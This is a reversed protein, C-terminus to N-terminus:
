PSAFELYGLGVNKGPHVLKILQDVPMAVMATLSGDPWRVDINAETASGLGFHVELPDHSVYNNHGGLERIQSGLSTTVTIHAGIGLSNAGVGELWISLYHHSNESDNRYYVLQDFGTNTLMIDIDGDREADFCAVGRGQSTDTLGVETAREAFSGDGSNHFFRVQDETYDKGLDPEWGNVHFLDLFGDNDFDAACSAWGWSGDDVGVEAAVEEFVGLGDNRYLRNGFFLTNVDLSYISTVFWDMDGDNDYDGVSAGMGNQDVIVDRDTTRTFTGDGNNLFVQSTRFDAAMLLDGDGDSDIDSFNPTYTHDTDAEILGAAVGSEISTSMFTGDGDNHWVTETDEGPERPAGWHALFLDLSDDGDYDYFTASVTNAATLAIGSSATIDVFTGESEDLKNEFLYYPNSNIAGVFLDLDGDGDIDGFAPGSGWHMVDVNLISAVELFTGDGQNEYLHNPENDGGTVYLDVDGDTDYDAAAIGGSFREPVTMAALDSASRSLGSTEISTFQIVGQTESDAPPDGGSQPLSPPAGQPTSSGGGCASTILLVTLILGALRIMRGAAGHIREAGEAVTRTTKM